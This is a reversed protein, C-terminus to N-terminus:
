TPATQVHKAEAEPELLWAISTECPAGPLNLTARLAQRELGHIASPRKFISVLAAAAAQCVLKQADGSGLFRGARLGQQGDAVDKSQATLQTASGKALDIIRDVRLITLLHGDLQLLM